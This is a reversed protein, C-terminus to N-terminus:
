PIHQGTGDGAPRWRRARNIRMKDDIAQGLDFGLTAGLRYLLIVVDAAEAASEGGGGKDVAERLEAMETAAREVLSAADCVPGFTEEGWDAVSEQTEVAQNM